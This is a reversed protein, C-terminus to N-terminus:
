HATHQQKQGSCDSEPGAGGHPGPRHARVPKQESHLGSGRVRTLPLRSTAAWCTESAKWM